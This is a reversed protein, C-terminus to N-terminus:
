SKRADSQLRVMARGGPHGLYRGRLGNLQRSILGSCGTMQIDDMFLGTVWAGGLSSEKM